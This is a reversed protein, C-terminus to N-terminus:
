FIKVLYAKNIKNIMLKICCWSFEFIYYLEKLSVKFISISSTNM